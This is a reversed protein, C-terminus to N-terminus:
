NAVTTSSVGIFKGCDARSDFTNLINGENDILQVTKAGENLYRNQSIIFLRGDEKRELNSPSSLLRDIKERLVERNVILNRGPNTSLRKINMQSAILEITECGLESYNQGLEKLKLV